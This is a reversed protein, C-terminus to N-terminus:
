CWADFRRIPGAFISSTPMSRQLGRPPRPSSLLSSHYMGDGKGMTLVPNGPVSAPNIGFAVCFSNSAAVVTLDGSLLLLPTDSTAIVALMLSLAANAPFEDHAEMAPGEMGSARLAFAM